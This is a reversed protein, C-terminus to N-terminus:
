RDRRVVSRPLLRARLALPARQRLCARLQDVAGLLAPDTTTRGGYWSEEVATVVQHLAQQGPGDLDHERVLRRATARVTESRVMGTGRDASEALLEDWAASPADVGLASVTSLRCHRRVQRIVAPAAAVGVLLLSVGLWWVVATTALVIVLCWTGVALPAMLRALRPPTLAAARVLATPVTPWRSGPGRVRGLPNPAIGLRVLVLAAVSFLLALPVLVALAWGVLVGSSTTDHERAPTAAVTPTTPQTAVASPAAQGSPGPARSGDPLGGASGPARDERLYPPTVARGGSLPTPDFTVWGFTPFHVEVWAHADSTLISRYSDDQGVVGPTFGIAVRTPVGMSRLMVALATAYQECFGSKTVFLFEDLQDISRTDRVAHLDYRFGNAGGNFYRTLAAVRDFTTTYQSTIASVLQRVRGSVQVPQVYRRDVGQDP